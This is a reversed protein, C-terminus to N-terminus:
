WLGDELRMDIANRIDRLLNDVDGKEFGVYDAQTRAESEIAELLYCVLGMWRSYNMNVIEKAAKGMHYLARRDPSLERYTITTERPDPTSSVEDLRRIVDM